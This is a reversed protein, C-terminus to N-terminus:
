SSTAISGPGCIGRRLQWIILLVQSLVIGEASVKWDYGRIPHHGQWRRMEGM